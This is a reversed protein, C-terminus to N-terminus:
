DTAETTNRIELAEMVDLQSFLASAALAASAENDFTGLVYEENTMEDIQVIEYLRM